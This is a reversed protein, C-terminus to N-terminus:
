PVNGAMRDPQCNAQRDTRMPDTGHPTLWVAPGTGRREALRVSNAEGPKNNPITQTPFPKEKELKGSMESGGPSDKCLFVKRDIRQTHNAQPVCAYENYQIFSLPTRGRM